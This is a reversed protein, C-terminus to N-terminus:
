GGNEGIQSHPRHRWFLDALPGPLLLSSPQKGERGQVHLKLLLADFSRSHHAILLLVFRFLNYLLSM